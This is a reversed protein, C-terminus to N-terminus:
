YTPVWPQRVCCAQCRGEYVLVDCDPSRPSRNCSVSWGPCLRYAELNCILDVVEDVSTLRSPHASYLRHTAPVPIDQVVVHFFLGPQIYIVAASVTSLPSPQFIRLDPGRPPLVEWRAPLPLAKLEALFEQLVSDLGGRPGAAIPTARSQSHKDLVAPASAKAAREEEGRVPNEEQKLSHQPWVRKAGEGSFSPLFAAPPPSAAGPAQAGNNEGELKEPLSSIFVGLGPHKYERAAGSSSVAQALPQPPLAQGQPSKGPPKAAAAAGRPTRRRQKKLCWRQLCTWQRQFGPKGKLECFWCAGCDEKTQCNSCVGCASSEDISRLCLRQTCRNPPPWSTNPQSMRGVCALCVGCDETVQCAKCDGCGGPESARQERGLANKQARCSKCLSHLRQSRAGAGSIRAGCNECWKTLPDPPAHPSKSAKAAAPAPLPEEPPKEKLSAKELWAGRRKKQSSARTPFYQLVGQKFDFCSLDCDPGLFRTLEVKSRILDGTPSQYYTDSRGCTAGSKRFTERRKWGPGLVPCDLWTDAMSSRPSRRSGPEAAM